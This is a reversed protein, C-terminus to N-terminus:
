NWLREWMGLRIIGGPFDVMTWFLYEKRFLSISVRTMM